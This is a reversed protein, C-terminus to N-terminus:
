LNPLAPNLSRETSLLIGFFDHHGHIQAVHFGPFRGEPQKQLAELCQEISPATTLSRFDQGEDVLPQSLGFSEVSSPLISVAVFLFLAIFASFVAAINKCVEAKRM